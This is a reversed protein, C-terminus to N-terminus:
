FLTQLDVAFSERLASAAQGQEVARAHQRFGDDSNRYVPVTETEPDMIWYKCVGQAEHLQKKDFADLHSTSPSVVEVVLDLAGNIEQEEIHDAWDPSIYLVDSQVVMDSSLRVDTSAISVSGTGRSHAQERLATGLGLVLNLHEFSSSPRPARSDTRVAGWRSAM